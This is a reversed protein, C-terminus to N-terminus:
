LCGAAAIAAATAPLPAAAIAAATVPVPRANCAATAPLSRNGLHRGDCSHMFLVRLCSAEVIKSVSSLCVRGQVVLKLLRFGFPACNLNKKAANPGRSGLQPTLVLSVRRM